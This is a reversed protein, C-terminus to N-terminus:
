NFYITSPIEEKAIDPGEWGVTLKPKGGVQFHKVTISHYGKALAIIGHRERRRHSGDNNVVLVNDIYLVSGDDSDLYFTYTGDKPTKIYGKYIVGSKESMKIGLDAKIAPLTGSHLLQYRTIDDVKKCLWVERYEYSIGKQVNAVKISNLVDLKRFKLTTTYSPYLRERFAKAKITMSENVEFKGLYLNSSSNPESGDKSYYIKADKDKCSLLVTCTDKFTITGDPPIQRNQVIIRPMPVSNFEESYPRDGIDEAWCINPVSSMVFKIEGGDAIDMHKIFSKTYNRGNLKASRIYSNKISNNNAIIEFTKGNELNIKVKDFIPSGIVYYDMGPTVSYFGMASLVYWASMQGADDNGSLGDPTNDYQSFMIERVRQQTKWAAGTYNYLYATHHSPENGHNCQGIFGRRGKVETMFYKDLWKAFKDDGGMLKILEHINQPVFTTYQYANAQTYYKSFEIPNFDELWRFNSDKPRIFNVEKSFLNKYFSGRNSYYEFDNKDIDKIVQALCWDDFSYELTRSVSQVVYDYPVFGFTKFLNRKEWPLNALEKMGEIAKPIDYDRIGKVYADAIVPLSHYGIMSPVENGSIEFMPLSGSHKYREIFTKVFDKAKTPNIITHLPHVGRFTDWLSFNTYDIFDKATYIENNTSRYRGDVDMDISPHIFTHYMATYFITKLKPDNGEVEIIQLERNWAQQAEKKVAEFDWGPIESLNKEAGGIDVKSIAVKVLIPQNVNYFQFYAKISKGYFENENNKLEGDTMIGSSIFPESFEAVFYLKQYMRLGGISARYGIIKTDSIIKLYLPDTKDNIGHELDLLINATDTKPFIYKHLGVRTTATLEAIINYDDLLVRYYGPSAFENEHSFGSRYGTKTNSPEGVSLQVQGTTPMFLFDGGSGEGTGSLHTHSFGMISNDSYHYGSSGKSTKVRTDPSLQVMGFPLLAGPFTHGEADTGIFPDVYNTYDVDSNYKRINTQESCGILIIFLTLLIKVFYKMIM